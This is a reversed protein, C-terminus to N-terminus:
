LVVPNGAEPCLIRTEPCATRISQKMWERAATEGHVLVVTRPALREVLAVLDRRHSHGSFRFRDISCNLPQMGTRRDLIVGDEQAHAAALLRGGPSDEKAFGVAFVAHREHEILQQAVRNSLTNEFMMGSTLVHISPEALAARQAKKGKPFRHQEVGAVEFADDRRPTTERSADYIRSVERMGGATYVPVDQPIHGQRKFRDILALIEQARGLMFVPLLIAGGRALVEQVAERFRLEEGERTVHEADSDAGLTTELVLVDLPPEPYVAEPVITQSRVNTDSTYLLRRAHGQEEVSLLVGASGLIHGSWYLQAKLSASLRFPEDFDHACYLDYLYDVDDLFFLPPHPSSGERYKRQQLRASSQLMFDALDRTEPTCHVEVDPYQEVLSPLAGIHDHHAHSLIVHAIDVHTKRRAAEFDPIGPLGERNPDAGADLAVCTDGVTLLHCSAGIDSTSGLSLFQM